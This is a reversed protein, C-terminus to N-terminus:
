ECAVDRCRRPCERVCVTYGGPSLDTWVAKGRGGADVVVRKEPERRGGEDGQLELHVWRGAALGSKVRAVVKGGGTCRPKVRIREECVGSWEYAGIDALPPHYGWGTDPKNEDDFFRPQGDLDYPMLEETDGDHDLDLFDPWVYDNSAADICPSGARLRLDDDETGPQGDPGREDVFMPDDWIIGSRKGWDDGRQVCSFVKSEPVRSQSYGGRGRSDTNAWLICGAM